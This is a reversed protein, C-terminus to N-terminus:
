LHHWGVEVKPGIMQAIYYVYDSAMGKFIGDEDYYQFPPFAQPSSTRIKKNEKLWAQEEQSLLLTSAKATCGAMSLIVVLIAGIIHIQKM